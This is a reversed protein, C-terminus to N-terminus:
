EATMDSLSQLFDILNMDGILYYGFATGAVIITIVTTRKSKFFGGQFIKKLWDM